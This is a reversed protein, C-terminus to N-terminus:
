KLTAKIIMELSMIRKKKAAISEAILITLTSWNVSSLLLLFHPLM